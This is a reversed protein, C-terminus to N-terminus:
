HQRAPKGRLLDLDDRVKLLTTILLLMGGVPMAMTV